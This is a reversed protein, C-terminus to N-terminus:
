NANLGCRSMHQQSLERMNLSEMGYKDRMHSFCELITKLVALNENTDEGFNHPHWWLHYILRNKAAYHLDSRIRRIRLPEFIKLKRSFPRLFRSSPINLPLDGGLVE